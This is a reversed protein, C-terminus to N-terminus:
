FAPSGLRYGRWNRPTEFIARFHHNRVVRCDHTETFERPYSPYSTGQSILPRNSLLVWDSLWSTRSTVPSWERGEIAHLFHIHSGRYEFNFLCWPIQVYWKSEFLYAKGLAWNTRITEEELQRNESKPRGTEWRPTLRDMLHIEYRNLRVSVFPSQAQFLGLRGLWV